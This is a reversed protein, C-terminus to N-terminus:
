VPCFCDCWFGRRYICKNSIIPWPVNVDWASGYCWDHSCTWSIQCPPLWDRLLPAGLADCCWLALQLFKVRHCGIGRYLRVHGMNVWLMVVGSLLNLFNSVIAASGEISACMGWTWGFFRLFVLSCTSSIQCSPLWGRSLPTFVGHEGLADCCCWLALELFKVRHCGVGRYLHVHGMNVWLM